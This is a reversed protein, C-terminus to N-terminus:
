KNTLTFTVTTAYTGSPVSLSVGTLQWQMPINSRALAGSFFATSSTTIVQYALGGSVAGPGLGDGTRRVWLQLAAPWGINDRSVDISWDPHGGPLKSVTAWTQSSGSEYISPLQWNALDSAQIHVPWDGTVDLLAAARAPEGCLGVLALAMLGAIPRWAKPGGTM